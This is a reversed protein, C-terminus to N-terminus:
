NIKHQNTRYWSSNKHCRCFTLPETVGGVEQFTPATNNPIVKNFVSSLLDCKKRSSIINIWQESCIFCFMYENPMKRAETTVCSITFTFIFISFLGM